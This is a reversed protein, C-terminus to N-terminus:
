LIITFSGPVKWKLWEKRKWAQWAILSQHRLFGNGCSACFRWRPLIRLLSLASPAMRINLLTKSDTLDIFVSVSRLCSCSQSDGMKFTHPYIPDAFIQLCQGSVSNDGPWMKSPGTKRLAHFHTKKEGAYSSYESLITCNEM